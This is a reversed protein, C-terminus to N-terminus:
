STKEPVSSNARLGRIGAELEFTRSAQLYGECFKPAPGGAGLIAPGARAGGGARGGSSGKSGPKMRGSQQPHQDRPSSIGPQSRTPSCFDGGTPLFTELLYILQLFVKMGQGGRWEKGWNPLKLRAPVQAAAPPNPSAQTVDRPGQRVALQKRSSRGGRISLEAM